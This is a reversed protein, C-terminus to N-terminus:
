FNLIKYTFTSQNKTKRHDWVFGEAKDDLDESEILYIVQSLNLLANL